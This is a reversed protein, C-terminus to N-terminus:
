SLGVLERQLPKLSMIMVCCLLVKPRYSSFQFDSNCPLLPASPKKAAKNREYSDDKRYQLFVMRDSKRDM